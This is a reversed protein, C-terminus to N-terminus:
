RIVEDAAGPGAGADRDRPENGGAPEGLRGIEDRLDMLGDVEDARVSGTVVLDRGDTDVRIRRLVLGAVTLAVIRNELWEHLQEEVGAKLTRAASEDRAELVVGLGLDASVNASAGVLDVSGLPALKPRSAALAVLSPRWHSPVRGVLVLDRGQSLKQWLRTFGSDGAASAEAGHFVRIATRVIDEDGAVIGNAGLFAARSSGRKSAIAAVGEIEVREITGGQRAVSKGICGVLRERDVDGRAIVGIHSLQPVRESVVWVVADDIAALPDFGCEARVRAIGESEGGVLARYFESALLRKADIWGVAAADRPANALPAEPLRPERHWLWFGLGGAAAAVVVGLAAIARLNKRPRAKAPAAATM